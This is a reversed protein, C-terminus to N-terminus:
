ASAPYPVGLVMRRANGVFGLETLRPQPLQDPFDIMSREGSDTSSRTSKGSARTGPLAMALPAACSGASILAGRCRILRRATM